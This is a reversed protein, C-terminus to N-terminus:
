QEKVSIKQAMGRGLAIKSHGVKVVIPGSQDERTIKKIVAGERIGLNHLRRVIGHGGEISVVKAEKGELLEILSVM